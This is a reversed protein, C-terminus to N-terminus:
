EAYGIENLRQVFNEPLEKMPEGTSRVAFNLMNSFLRDAAPDKGLNEAIHLTNAIFLGQGFSWIGLHIGSCYDHSIRTAGCVTESPYILPVSIEDYTYNAKSVKTNEQSIAEESIINRFYLYDMMGGSPMEDFIPHKKVWRDARYYGGVNDVAALIGKRNLPLWGTKDKGKKFTAPSLFVVTSGCMMQQAVSQMTPEDQAEGVIVIVQRKTQNTKDLTSVKINHRSLWTSVVPDSGCLVIEKPLVPLTNDSVYFETESGIATGGKELTALVSYKGASGSIEFEENLIEQSFPPEQGGKTEPICLTVKKEFIPKLDPGVVRITGPYKGVPLVDLNSFSARVQVKSGSYISQPETSLCWRVSANALLVPEILDPKLRRFSTAVSEGVIYDSVSNTPTYSVVHPNSRIATEAIKRITSATKYADRIYDEPRAWCSGLDFKKWDALFKEYQKRYYLADDSQEKGLLQYDGLESPLDIPFCLGTESVYFKQDTTDSIGSLENLTKVSYPLWPYPHWDKLEDERVNWTDSCPNSMSGIDKRDDFRGSNLIFIRLPDLKRLEPLLSVAKQFLAGDATENLLGWQIISAHNRDRLVVERVSQEFRKVLLEQSSQPNPYKNGGYDGMQWCGYHEMQVMIGLEDYVDLIRPNPCGFPIRVFNFGLAKMNIVDRRLMDENLPVTFGVPYHTSFNSGKLFIRKGNLRFYGNAFRFDRFGFQVSREDVSSCNFTELDVVMRYLNPDDPSWLKYQPMQIEVEITNSGRNLKRNYRELTIPVGTRAEVIKFSLLSAIEVSQANLVTTQIKVKGTNWDPVVFNESIYAAPLVLLEVPGIIGGSNYAANGAVPYQKAGSPTDKLAIGDIPQYTPNLVRIVLLNKGDPNIQDTVDLDFPTESGEHGGVSKGNIWVEALYDVAHFKLLYRGYRHLNKPTDFERWYWAVGHYNHFIDQIVWPVPTQRSASLPPTQFWLNQRGVNSSDTAIRWDNGNLSITQTCIGGPNKLRIDKSFSLNCLMGLFLVLIYKKM